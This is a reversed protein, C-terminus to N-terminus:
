ICFNSLALKILSFKILLLLRKALIQHILFLPIITDSLYTVAELLFKETIFNLSIHWVIQILQKFKILM